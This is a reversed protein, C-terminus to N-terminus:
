RMVDAQLMKFNSILCELSWDGVLMWDLMFVFDETFRLAFIPEPFRREDDQEAFVCRDRELKPEPLRRGRTLCTGDRAM